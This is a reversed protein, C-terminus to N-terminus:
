ATTCCQLLMLFGFQMAIVSHRLAIVLPRRVIVSDIAAFWGERKGYRSIKERLLRRLESALFETAQPRTLDPEIAHAPDRTVTVFPTVIPFSLNLDPQDPTYLSSVLEVQVSERPTRSMYVAATAAATALARLQAHLIEPSANLDVGLVPDTIPDEAAFQVPQGMALAWHTGNYDNLNGYLSGPLSVETLYTGARTARLASIAEAPILGVVQEPASRTRGPISLQFDM